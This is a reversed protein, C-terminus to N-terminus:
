TVKPQEILQAGAAVLLPICLVPSKVVSNLYSLM